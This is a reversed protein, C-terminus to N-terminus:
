IKFHLNAQVLNTLKVSELIPLNLESIFSRGIVGGIDTGIEPIIVNFEASHCMFPIKISGSTSLTVNHFIYIKLYNIYIEPIIKDKQILNIYLTPDYSFKGIKNKLLDSYIM